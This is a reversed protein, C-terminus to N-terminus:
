PKRREGPRNPGHRWRGQHLCPEPVLRWTPRWWRRGCTALPATGPTARWTLTAPSFRDATAAPPATSRRPTTLGIARPWIGGRIGATSDSIRPDGAGRGGRRQRPAERDGRGLRRPSLRRDAPHRYTRFAFRPPIGLVRPVSIRAEPRRASVASSATIGALLRGGPLHSLRRAARHGRRTRDRSHAHTQCRAPPLLLRVCAGRAGVLRHARPHPHHTRILM